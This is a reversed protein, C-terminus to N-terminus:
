RPIDTLPLPTGASGALGLMIRSIIPGRKTDAHAPSAPFRINPGSDWRQRRICTRGGTCVPTRHQDGNMGPSELRGISRTRNKFDVQSIVSCGPLLPAPVEAKRAKGFMVGSVDRNAPGIQGLLRYHRRGLNRATGRGGAELAHPHFVFRPAHTVNQHRRLLRHVCRRREPRRHLHKSYPPFSGGEVASCSSPPEDNVTANLIPGPSLFTIRIMRAQYAGSHSPLPTGPVPPTGKTKLHRDLCNYSVNLKGGEFFKVFIPGKKIDFNYDMVKDWKKFWEVQKEGIEAWFKEPEEVSKKWLKDYAERGSIFATKKIKEPVPYIDKLQVKGADAM